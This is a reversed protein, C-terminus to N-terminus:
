VVEMELKYERDKKSMTKQGRWKPSVETGWLTQAPRPFVVTGGTRESRGAVARGPAVPAPGGGAVLGVRGRRRRRQRGVVELGEAPGNHATSPGTRRPGFVRAQLLLIAAAQEEVLGDRALALHPTKATRSCGPSTFGRKKGKSERKLRDM